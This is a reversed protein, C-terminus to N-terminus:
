EVTFSQCNLSSNSLLESETDMALFRLALHQSKCSRHGEPTGALKKMGKKLCPVSLDRRGPLTQSRHPHGKRDIFPDYETDSSVKQAGGQRWASGGLFKWNDPGTPPLLIYVPFRLAITAEERELYITVGADGEELYNIVNMGYLGAVLTAPALGLMMIEIKTELVM